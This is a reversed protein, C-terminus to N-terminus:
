INRYEPASSDVQDSKKKSDWTGTNQDGVKVSSETEDGWVVSMALLMVFRM